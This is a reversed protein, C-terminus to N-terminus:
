FQNTVISYKNKTGLAYIDFRRRKPTEILLRLLFVLSIPKLPRESSKGKDYEKHMGEYTKKTEEICKKLEKNLTPVGFYEKIEKENLKNIDQILYWEATKLKEKYDKDKLMWEDKKVMFSHFEKSPTIILPVPSEHLEFFIGYGNCKRCAIPSGKCNYCM